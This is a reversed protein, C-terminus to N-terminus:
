SWITVPTPPAPPQVVVTNGAQVQVVAYPQNPRTGTRGVSKESRLEAQYRAEEETYPGFTTFIDPWGGERPPRGRIEDPVLRIVYWNAALAADPVFSYLGNSWRGDPQVSFGSSVPRADTPSGYMWGKAPDLWRSLGNYSGKIRSM